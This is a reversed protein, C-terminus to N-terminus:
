WFLHEGQLPETDCFRAGLNSTGDPPPCKALMRLATCQVLLLCVKLTLPLLPIVKQIMKRFNIFRKVLRQGEANLVYDLCYLNALTKLPLSCLNM